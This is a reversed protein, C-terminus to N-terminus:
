TEGNLSSWPKMEYDALEKESLERDYGVVGWRGLNYLVEILGSPQCGISVPRLLMEYYYTM